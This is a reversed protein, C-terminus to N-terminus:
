LVRVMGRPAEPLQDIAAREPAPEAPKEGAPATGVVSVEGLFRYGRKPLTEIFRPPSASDNLVEGLKNISTNLSHHYDVCTDAPWLAKVIQDRTVLEGPRQLLLALVQFPQDQLRVRAGHKRLERTSLDAEFVSFRLIRKETVAEMANPPNLRDAKVEARHNR